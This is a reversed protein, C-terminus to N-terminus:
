PATPCDPVARKRSMAIPGMGAFSSIPSVRISKRRTASPGPSRVAVMTRMILPLHSYTARARRGTRRGRFLADKRAIILRVFREWAAGREERWHWNEVGDRFVELAQEVQFAKATRGEGM